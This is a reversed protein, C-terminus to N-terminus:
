NGDDLRKKICTVAAGSDTELSFFGHNFLSFDYHSTPSPTTFATSGTCDSNVTYTGALAGFPGYVLSGGAMITVSGSANGKGDFILQGVVGVSAGGNTGSCTFAYTAKASENSCTREARADAGVLLIGVVAVISLISRGLQKM